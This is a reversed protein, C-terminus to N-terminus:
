LDIVCSPCSLVSSQAQPSDPQLLVPLNRSLHSPPPWARVRVSTPTLPLDLFSLDIRSYPSPASSSSFLLEWTETRPPLSPQEQAASLSM